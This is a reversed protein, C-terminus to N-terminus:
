LKLFNLNQPLRKHVQNDSQWKFPETVTVSLLLGYNESKKENPKSSIHYSAQKPFAFNLM